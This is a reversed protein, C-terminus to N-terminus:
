SGGVQQLQPLALLALAGPITRNCPAYGSPEERNVLIKGENILASKIFGATLASAAPNTM